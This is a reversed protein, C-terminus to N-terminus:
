GTEAVVPPVMHIPDSLEVVSSSSRRCTNAAYSALILETLTARSSYPFEFFNANTLKKVSFSALDASKPMDPNVIAPFVTFIFRLDDNEDM